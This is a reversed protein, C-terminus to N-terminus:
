FACCLRVAERRAGSSSFALAFTARPASLSLL